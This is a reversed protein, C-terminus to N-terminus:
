ARRSSSASARSSSAGSGQHLSPRSTWPIPRIRGQVIKRSPRHREEADLLTLAHAVAHERQGVSVLADDRARDDAREGGALPSRKESRSRVKATASPTETSSTSASQVGALERVLEAGNVEEVDGRAGRDVADEEEGAAQLEIEGKRRLGGEAGARRAEPQEEAGRRSSGARRVAPRDLLEEAVCDM